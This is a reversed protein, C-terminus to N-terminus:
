ALGSLCDRILDVRGRAGVRAREGLLGAGAGLRDDLVDVHALLHLLLRDVDRGGREFLVVDLLVDGRLDLLLEIFAVPGGPVDDNPLVKAGVNRM